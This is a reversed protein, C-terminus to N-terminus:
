EGDSEKELSWWDCTNSRQVPNDLFPNNPHDCYSNGGLPDAHDNFYKCGMCNKFKKRKEELVSM